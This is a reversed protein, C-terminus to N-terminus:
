FEIILQNKCGCVKCIGADLELQDVALGARTLHHAVTEPVGAVGLVLDLKEPFVGFVDAPLFTRGIAPQQKM